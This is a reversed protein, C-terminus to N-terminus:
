QASPKGLTFADRDRTRYPLQADGRFCREYGEADHEGETGAGDGSTDLVCYYSWKDGLDLGITLRECKRNLTLGVAMPTRKKM